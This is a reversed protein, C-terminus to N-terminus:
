QPSRTPWTSYWTWPVWPSRRTSSGTPWSRWSLGDPMSRKRSCTLTSCEDCPRTSPRRQKADGPLRFGVSGPIGAIGYHTIGDHDGIRSSFTEEDRSVEAVEPM